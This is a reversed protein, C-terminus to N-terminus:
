DQGMKEAAKVLAPTDGIRSVVEKRNQSTSCFDNSDFYGGKKPVPRSLPPTFAEAGFPTETEKAYASSGIGLLATTIILSLKTSALLKKFGRKDSQRYLYVFISTFALLFLIRKIM